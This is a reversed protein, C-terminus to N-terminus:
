NIGNWVASSTSRCCIRRHPFFCVSDTPFPSAVIDDCNLECVCRPCRDAALFGKKLLIFIEPEYCSWDLCIRVFSEPVNEVDSLRWLCFTLGAAPDAAAILSPDEPQHKSPCVSRYFVVSLALLVFQCVFRAVLGFSSPSPFVREPGPRTAIIVAAWCLLQRRRHQYRCM